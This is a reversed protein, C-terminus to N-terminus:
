SLNPHKKSQHIEVINKTDFGHFRKAHIQHKPWQPKLFADTSIAPVLGQVVKYFFTLRATMRKDKLSPLDQDKLMKSICGPERTAYDGSIFRIAQRQIKEIRNIDKVYYPDWVISGYELVSRVLSIYTTRRCPEPCYRLNRKLFALTSNAKKTIKILHPEWKLDESILIGLYPNQKVKELIHNNLTYFHSSRSNFSM